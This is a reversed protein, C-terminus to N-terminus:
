QIRTKVPREGLSESPSKVVNAPSMSSTQTTQSIVKKEITSKTKCNELRAQLHQELCAQKMSFSALTVLATSYSRPKRGNATISKGRTAPETSSNRIESYEAANASPADTRRRGDIPM